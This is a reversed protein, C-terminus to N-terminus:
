GCCFLYKKGPTTLICCQVCSGPSERHGPRQRVFSHKTGFDPGGLLNGTQTESLTSGPGEQNITKWGSGSNGRPAMNQSTKNSVYRPLQSSMNPYLTINRTHVLSSQTVGPRPSRGSGRECSSWDECRERSSGGLGRECQSRRASHGQASVVAAQPVVDVAVPLFSVCIKNSPRAGQLVWPMGCLRMLHRQWHAGLCGRRLM